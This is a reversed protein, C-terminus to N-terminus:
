ESPTIMHKKARKKRSMKRRLGIVTMGCRRLAKDLHYTTITKRGTCSLASLRGLRTIMEVAADSMEMFPSGNESVHLSLNGARYAINQLRKRSFPLSPQKASM